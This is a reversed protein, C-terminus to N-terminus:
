LRRELGVGGGGGRNGLSSTGGHAHVGGIMNQGEEIRSVRGEIRSGGGGGRNGLSSTGGHAHVGGLLVHAVDYDEGVPHDGERQVAFLEVGVKFCFHGRNRGIQRRENSLRNSGPAVGVEGLGWKWGEWGCGLGM